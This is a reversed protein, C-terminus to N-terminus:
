MISDACMTCGIDGPRALAGWSYPLPDFFVLSCSAAKLRLPSGSHEHASELLMSSRNQPHSFFPKLWPLLTSSRVHVYPPPCVIPKQMLMLSMCGRSYSPAIGKKMSLRIGAEAEAAADDDNNGDAGGAGGGIGSANSRARMVSIGFFSSPRRLSLFCHKVSFLAPGVMRVSAPMRGRSRAVM